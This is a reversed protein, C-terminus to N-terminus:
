EQDQRLNPGLGRLAAIKEKELDNLQTGKSM